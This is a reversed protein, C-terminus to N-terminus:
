IVKELAQIATTCATAIEAHTIERSADVWETGAPWYIRATGDPSPDGRELITITGDLATTAHIEHAQQSYTVGPGFKHTSLPYLGVSRAQGELGKFDACNIVGEMYPRSEGDNMTTRGFMRNTLCGARITSCFDWPHDHHLSINPVIFASHYINIRLRKADDLYAKMFGIGHARWYLKFPNTLIDMLEEDSPM